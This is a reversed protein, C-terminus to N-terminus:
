NEKKPNLATHLEALRMDWWRAMSAGLPPPGAKVWRDALAQVRALAAEAREARETERISSDLVRACSECTTHWTIRNEYEAVAAEAREARQCQAMLDRHCGRHKLADAATSQMAAEMAAAKREAQEARQVARAREAESRNSTDHAVRLLEEAQDARRKQGEWDEVTPAADGRGCEPCYGRAVQRLEALADLESRLETLVFDAEGYHHKSPIDNGSLANQNDYRHIARAVRQRLTPQDTV